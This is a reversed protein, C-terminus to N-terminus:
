NTLNSRGSTLPSTPATRCETPPSPPAPLDCRRPESAASPLPVCICALLAAEGRRRRRVQAVLLLTIDGGPLTFNWLSSNGPKFTSIVVPTSKQGTSANFIFYSLQFSLPVQSVNSM